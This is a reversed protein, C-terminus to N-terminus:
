EENMGKYRITYGNNIIRGPQRWANEINNYPKKHNKARKLPVYDIVGEMAELVHINDLLIKRLVERIMSSRSSYIGREILLDIALMWGKPASFSYSKNNLNSEDYTQNASGM